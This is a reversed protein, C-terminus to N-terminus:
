FTGNTVAGTVQLSASWEVRGGVGVSTSYQAVFASGASRAQSAVSGGPGWIFAAAASGANQAAKLATMHTHVTVDYPGSLSITDGDTLGNIFAKAATGLVSVDLMEVTQPYSLNDIYPSLDVVSAATNNFYFKSVTGAKFAM